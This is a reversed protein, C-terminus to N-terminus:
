SERRRKSPVSSRGVVRRKQGVNGLYQSLLLLLLGSELWKLENEVEELPPLVKRRIDSVLYLGGRPGPFGESFRRDVYQFRRKLPNGPLALPIPFL